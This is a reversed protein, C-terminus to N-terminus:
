QIINTPNRFLNNKQWQLDGIKAKLTPPLDEIDLGEVSDYEGDIAANLVAIVIARATKGKPDLEKLAELRKLADKSTFIKALQEYARGYLIDDLKQRSAGILSAPKTVDVDAAIQAAKAGTSLVDADKIDTATPSGERLTNRIAFMVKGMKQINEIDRPNDMTVALIKLNEPTFFQGYVRQALNASMDAAQTNSVKEVINKFQQEIYVRQADRFIEAGGPLQKFYEFSRMLADPTVQNSSFIRGLANVANSKDKGLSGIIGAVSNDFPDIYNKTFNEFAKLAKAYNPSENKMGNLLASRLVNLGYRATKDAGPADDDIRQIYGDLAKKIENLNAIDTRFEMQPIPQGAGDLVPKGDSTLKPVVKGDKMKVKYLQNAFQEIVKGQPTGSTEKIIQEVSRWANRAVNFSLQPTEIRAKAYFKDFIKSRLNVFKQKIQSSADIATGIVAQADLSGPKRNITPLLINEIADKVQKYQGGMQIVQDTLPSIDGFLFEDYINGAEPNRRVKRELKQLSSLGSAQPLSLDIGFEDRAMTIFDNLSQDNVGKKIKGFDSANIVGPPPSQGMVKNKIATAGASVGEIAGPIAAAMAVQGMDINAGPRPDLFNGITQRGVEGVAGAMAGPIISAGGTFPAAAVGGTTLMEPISAPLESLAGSGIASLDDVTIKTDALEKNFTNSLELNKDTPSAAINSQAMSLATNKAVTALSNLAGPDVQSYTEVGNKITRYVLKGNPDLFFDEVPIGSFRSLIRIREGMDSAFSGAMRSGMGMASQFGTNITTGEPVEAINAQTNNPNAQRFLNALNKSSGANVLTNNDQAQRAAKLLSALSKNDAM